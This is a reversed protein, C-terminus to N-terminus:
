RDTVLSGSAYRGREGDARVVELAECYRGDGLRGWYRCTAVALDPDPFPTEGAEPTYAGLAECKAAVFPDVPVFLAPRFAATATPAEYCCVSAVEATALLAAEHTHRHDGDRDHGSHISAVTPAVDAVVAGIRGVTPEGGAIRGPVLDDLVLRAGLIAAAQRARAARAAAGDGPGPSAGHGGTSLVLIVVEDGQQRHRLLTGGVGAEVDGPHAGVALVCEPGAAPASGRRVLAEVQVVLDNPEIPKALFADVESRRAREIVDAGAYATMLAVALDPYATRLRRVLDFGSMGPLRIDVLAVDCPETALLRLAETADAAARAGFGARELVRVMFRSTAPHDEVVLVRGRNAQPTGADPVQAM